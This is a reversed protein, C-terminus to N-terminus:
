EFGDSFIAMSAYEFAGIDAQTGFVRPYGAGRQDAELADPNAGRDIAFSSAPLAHTFTPGGNDALPELQPDTAVTDMPLTLASVGVLNAVGTVATAASDAAYIDAAPSSDDTSTNGFVISSNMAFDVWTAIGGGFPASNDTITSNNLTASVDFFLGGGRQQSSNGSITSNSLLVGGAWVGGGDHSAENGSITTGSLSVAEYYGFVGGGLGPLGVASNGSITSGQLTIDGDFAYLGGGVAYGEGTVISNGSVRSGALSLDSYIVAVGGAGANVGADINNGSITSDVLGVGYYAFVGGGWGDSVNHISNEAVTLATADLGGGDVFVGGGVLWDGGNISNESVSSNGIMLGASVSVGGGRGSGYGTVVSISNGSITSDQITALGAYSYYMSDDSSLGGGRAHGNAVTISNATVQARLLSVEAAEVFIGGGTGRTVANIHNGSITADVLRLNGTSALGAGGGIGASSDVSNDTVILSSADFPSDSINVLGGGAAATGGSVNNATITSDMISGGLVIVGGGMAPGAGAQVSNSSFTARTLLADGYFMAGGSLASINPDTSTGIAQNDAVSVDTLSGTGAFLGGGLAMGASNVSNGSVTSDSLDGRYKSFLGGGSAIASAAVSVVSNDQLMTGSSVSAVEAYVGGGFADDEQSSANNGSIVSNIITLQQGFVGGGRAGFEGAAVSNGSIESDIVVLNDWAMVGGGRASRGEVANDQVRSQLMLVSDAAIGGGRGLGSGIIKNGSVESNILTVDNWALVAGYTEFASAGPYIDTTNGSVISNTLEVGRRSFVAAGGSYDRGIVHSNSIVADRLVVQSRAHIAGGYAPGSENAHYGGTLTVGEVAFLGNYYGYGEYFIRNSEGGDISLLDAGPGRITVGGSPVSIESELLITDCGAAPLGRLDIVDGRSAGAVADRLSGPGSDDCNGVLVIAQPQADKARQVPAAAARAQAQQEARRELRQARAQERQQKHEARQQRAQDRWQELLPLGLVSAAADGSLRSAVLESGQRHQGWARAEAKRPREKQARWEAKSTQMMPANDAAQVPVSLLSAAFVAAVGAALPTMRLGRCYKAENRM